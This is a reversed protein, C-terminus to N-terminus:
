CGSGPFYNMIVSGGVKWAAVNAVIAAAVLIGTAGASLRGVRGVIVPGLVCGILGTLPAFLVMVGLQAYGDHTSAAAAWSLAQPAVSLGISLLVIPITLRGRPMRYDYIFKGCEPCTAPAGSRPAPLGSM